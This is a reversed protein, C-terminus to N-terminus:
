TLFTQRSVYMKFSLISLLIAFAHQVFVGIPTKYLFMIIVIDGKSQLDALSGVLYVAGVRIIIIWIISIVLGKIFPPMGSTAWLDFSLCFAANGMILLANLALIRWLGETLVELPFTAIVSGIYIIMAGLWYFGQSYFRALGLERQTVPIIHVFRMRKETFRTTFLLYMIAVAILHPISPDKYVGNRVLSGFLYFTFTLTLFLMAHLFLNYSFEARM